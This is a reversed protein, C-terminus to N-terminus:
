GPVDRTEAILFDAAVLAHKRHGLLLDGLLGAALAEVLVHPRTLLGLEDAELKELLDVALDLHRPAVDFERVLLILFAVVGVGGRVEAHDDNGSAILFPDLRDLIGERARRALPHWQAKSGNMDWYRQPNSRMAECYHLWRPAIQKLDELHFIHYWGAARALKATPM